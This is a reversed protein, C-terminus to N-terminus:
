TMKKKEEGKECQQRHKPKERGGVGPNFVRDTYKVLKIPYRPIEPAMHLQIVEQASM